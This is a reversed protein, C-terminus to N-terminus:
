IDLDHTHEWILIDKAEDEFFHIGVENIVDQIDRDSFNCDHMSMMIVGRIYENLRYIDPAEKLEDIKEGARTLIDVDSPLGNFEGALNNLEHM